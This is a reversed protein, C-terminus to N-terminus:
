YSPNYKVYFFFPLPNSVLIPTGDYELHIQEFSLFERGNIGILVFGNIEYNHSDIRIIGIAFLNTSLDQKEYEGITLPMLAIITFLIGVVL